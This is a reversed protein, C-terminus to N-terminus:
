VLALPLIKDACMKPSVFIVIVTSDSCHILSTLAMGASFYLMISIYTHYLAHKDIWKFFVVFSQYTKVEDFIARDSNLVDGAYSVDKSFPLNSLIYCFLPLNM